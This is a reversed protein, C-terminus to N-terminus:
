GSCHHVLSQVDFCPTQRVHGGSERLGSSAHGSSTSRFCGRLLMGHPYQPSTFLNTWRREECLPRPLCFEDVNRCGSRWIWFTWLCRELYDFFILLFLFLCPINPLFLCSVHAVSHGFKGERAHLWVCHCERSLTLHCTATCWDSSSHFM